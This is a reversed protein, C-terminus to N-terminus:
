KNRVEQRHSQVQDILIQIQQYQDDLFGIQGKVRRNQHDVLDRYKLEDKESWRPKYHRNKERESWRKLSNM